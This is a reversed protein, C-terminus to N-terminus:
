VSAVVGERAGVGTIMGVIEEPTTGAVSRMGACRGQRLVQVRDALKFVVAMDHSVLVVGKGDARLSAILDVVQATERVGLAATPEDMVLISAGSRLARAIAVMQRQGGSLMGIPMRVDPVTARVDDLFRRAERDMTQRDVLGWRGPTQGIFMNSSVDLCEVLALDQTVAAIGAAAAGRPSAFHHEAGGVQISGATPQHIGILVNLLTSKGAGNDGVIALVEGCAVELDVDTVARIHGFTKSIARLRLFPQSDISM